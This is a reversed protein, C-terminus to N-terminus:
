EIEASKKYNHFCRGHSWGIFWCFTKRFSKRIENCEPSKSIRSCSWISERSKKCKSKNPAVRNKDKKLKKRLKGNGWGAFLYPQRFQRDQGSKSAVTTFSWQDNRWVSISRFNFEFIFFSEQRIFHAPNRSLLKIEESM